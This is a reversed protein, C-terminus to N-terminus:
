ARERRETSAPFRPAALLSAAPRGMPQAQLGHAFLPVKKLGLHTQAKARGKAVLCQSM